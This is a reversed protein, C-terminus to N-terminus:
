RGLLVDRYHVFAVHAREEMVHLLAIVQAPDIDGARIRQAEAHLEDVSQLWADRLRAVRLEISTEVM